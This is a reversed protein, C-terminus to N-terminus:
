HYCSLDGRSICQATCSNTQDPNNTQTSQDQKSIQYKTNPQPIKFWSKLQNTQVLTAIQNHPFQDWSELQAQKQNQQTQNTQHSLLILDPKTLTNSDQQTKDQKALQNQPFQDWSELQTPIGSNKIKSRAQKRRLKCNM